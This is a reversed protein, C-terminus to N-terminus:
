IIKLGKEPVKVEFHISELLVVVLLIKEVLFRGVRRRLV